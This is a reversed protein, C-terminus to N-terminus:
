FYGSFFDNTKILDSVFWSSILLRGPYRREVFNSFFGHFPEIELACPGINQLYKSIIQAPNRYTAAASPNLLFM